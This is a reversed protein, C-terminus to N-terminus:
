DHAIDGLRLKETSYVVFSSDLHVKGKFRNTQDHNIGFLGGKTVTVQVHISTDVVIILEFLIM